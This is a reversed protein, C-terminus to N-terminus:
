LHYFGVSRYDVNGVAGGANAYDNPKNSFSKPLRIAKTAKGQDFIM